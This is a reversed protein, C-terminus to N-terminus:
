LGDAQSKAPSVTMGVEKITGLLAAVKLLVAELENQDCFTRSCHYDDAFISLLDTTAERSIKEALLESTLHSYILWLLPSLACAQRVGQTAHIIRGTGDHQIHNCHCPMRGCHRHTQTASRYSADRWWDIAHCADFAGALDLTIQVGGALTRQAAGPYGGRLTGSIVQCKTRVEHCHDFM